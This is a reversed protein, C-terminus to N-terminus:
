SPTPKGLTPSRTAPSEPLPPKASYASAGAGMGKAVALKETGRACAIVTAGMLKGIEVATLGVGGAAGLVLLNEGPKLRARYDLGVHSTGYAVLFAAAHAAPMAAPVPVCALAPALAYEAFGGNGSLGAVRDGVKPFGVGEGVADVVGAVEMGPSFPLEPKEQYTGKVMLTDAFNVGCAEIRLRVEGKGPEPVAADDLRLPAGLEHVRMARM